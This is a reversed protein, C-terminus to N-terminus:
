RATLVARQADEPKVVQVLQSQTQLTMKDDADSQVNVLAARESANTPQLSLTEHNPTVTQSTLMASFLLYIGFLVVAVSAFYAIKKMHSVGQQVLLISYTIWELLFHLNEQLEETVEPEHFETTNEESHLGGSYFRSIHLSESWRPDDAEIDQIIM